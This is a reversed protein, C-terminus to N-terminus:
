PKRGIAAYDLYTFLLRNMKDVNANLTEAADALVGSGAVPQLKDHEPYPASYRIEVQQFGSAILLFKLTDPHLARVHTIDRIYSAFFAFWCAANITELVVLAGPRLKEFAVDLLQTLYGPDLHEVVQAAFLGGLSDDPQERLYSLADARVVELGKDRCTEVMADNQDIGRAPIGHERLLLLFEGRGCGVDLVASAGAFLPVYAMLDARVAEPSGRFADEFGIYKHTLADTSPAPDPAARHPPVQRAAKGGTGEGPVAGTVAAGALCRALGRSLQHSEHQLVGVSIRLEAHEARMATIAADMRRERAALAERGRRVEDLAADLEAFLSDVAAFAADGVKQQRATLATAENIYQVLTSNFTEQPRLLRALARRLPRALRQKLSPRAGEPDVVRWTTNLLEILEGNVEAAAPWAHRRRGVDGTPASV